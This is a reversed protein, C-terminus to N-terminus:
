HGDSHPKLSLHRGGDLVSVVSGLDEQHPDEAQDEDDQHEDDDDEAAADASGPPLEGWHNRHNRHPRSAPLIEVQLLLEGVLLDGPQAAGHPPDLVLVGQQEVVHLQGVSVRFNATTSHFTGM